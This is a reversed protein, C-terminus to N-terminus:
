RVGLSGGNFMYEKNAKAKNQKTTQKNIEKAQKLILNNPKQKQTKKKKPTRQVTHINLRKGTISFM